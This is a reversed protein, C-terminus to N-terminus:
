LFVLVCLKSMYFLVRASIGIYKSFRETTNSIFQTFSNYEKQSTVALFWKAVTHNFNDKYPSVEWVWYSQKTFYYKAAM